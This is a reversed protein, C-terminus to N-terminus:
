SPPGWISGYKHELYKEMATRERENFVKAFVMVEAIDAVVSGTPDGLLVLDPDEEPNGLADGVLKGSLFFETKRHSAMCASVSFLGFNTVHPGDISTLGDDFHTAGGSALGCEWPRPDDGADVSFARGQVVSRGRQAGTGSFRAAIIVSYPRKVPSSLILSAKAPLRVARGEGYRWSPLELADAIVRPRIQSPVFLSPGEFSTRGSANTTRAIGVAVADSGRGSADRWATLEAGNEAGGFSGDLVNVGRLFMLEPPSPTVEVLVRKSWADSAALSKYMTRPSVASDGNFSVREGKLV